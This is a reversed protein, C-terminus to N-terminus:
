RVARISRRRDGRACARVGHGAARDTRVTRGTGATRAEGLWPHRAVDQRCQRREAPLGVHWWRRDDLAWGEAVAMARPQRHPTTACRRLDADELLSRVADDVDRTAEDVVRQHVLPPPPSSPPAVCRVGYASAGMAPQEARHLDDDPPVPDACTTQDGAVVGRESAGSASAIAPSSADRSCLRHHFPLQACWRSGRGATADSAPAPPPTRSAPLRAPTRGGPAKPCALRGTRGGPSQAAPQTGSPACTTPEM